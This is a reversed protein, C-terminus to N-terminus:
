QIKFFKRANEKTAEAVENFTLGKIEAIKDAVYEVYAPENRKGRFPVPTLYPSDTEVFLRELPVTEVVEITKRNNKFTLPGAISIYAGLKVYQRALEASGSFCHLVVGSEFPDEEKLIRMVDDNADRDHIIIPLNLSKALRIQDRFVKKQIERPSNDYYYDLGIEGIAKVKEKKALAKILSLMIDDVTDADHPHIGVAAYVMEYKESMEVARVSSEYSAGPNMILSIGASQAREIIADREGEFRESDLHAHSDFLM